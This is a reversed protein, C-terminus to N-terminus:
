WAPRSSRQMTNTPLTVPVSVRVNSRLTWQGAGRLIEPAHEPFLIGGDDDHEGFKSFHSPYTRERGREPRRFACKQQNQTEISM